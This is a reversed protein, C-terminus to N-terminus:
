RRHVRATVAASNACPGSSQIRRLMKADLPTLDQRSPAGERAARPPSRAHVIRETRPNAVVDSHSRRTRPIAPAVNLHAPSVKRSTTRQRRLPRRPPHTWADEHPLHTATRAPERRRNQVRTSAFLAGAADIASNWHTMQGTGRPPRSDCVQSTRFEAIRKPDSLRPHCTQRINAPRRIIARHKGSRNKTMKSYPPQHRSYAVDSTGEQKAGELM